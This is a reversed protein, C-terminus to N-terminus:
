TSLVEALQRYIDQIGLEAVDGSLHFETERVFLKHDFARAAALFLFIGGRCRVPAANLRTIGGAPNGRCVM